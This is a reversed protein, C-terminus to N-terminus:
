RSVGLGLLQSFRKQAKRWLPLLREGSVTRPADTAMRASAGVSLASAQTDQLSSRAAKSYNAVSQSFALAELEALALSAKAASTASQKASRM